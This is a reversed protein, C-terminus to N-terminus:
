FFIQMSPPQQEQLQFQPVPEGSRMAGCTQSGLLLQTEQRGEREETGTQGRCAHSTSSAAEM